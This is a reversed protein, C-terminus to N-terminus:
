RLYSVPDQDSRIQTGVAAAAAEAPSPSIDEITPTALALASTACVLASVLFAFFRMYSHSRSYSVLSRIQLAFHQKYVVCISSPRVCLPPVRSIDFRSSSFLAVAPAIFLVRAQQNPVPTEIYATQPTQSDLSM